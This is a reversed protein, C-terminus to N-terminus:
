FLRIVVDELYLSIHSSLWKYIMELRSHIIHMHDLLPSENDGESPDWDHLMWKKYKLLPFPSIIQTFLVPFSPNTLPIILHPTNIKCFTYMKWSLKWLLDSKEWIVSSTVCTAHTYVKDIILSISDTHTPWHKETIGTNHQVIRLIRWFKIM